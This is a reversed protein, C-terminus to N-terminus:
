DPLGDRQDKQDRLDRPLAPRAVVQGGPSILRYGIARVILLVLTLTAAAGLGFAYIAPVVEASDAQGSSIVAVVAFVALPGCAIVILLLM